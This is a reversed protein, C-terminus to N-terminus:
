SNNWRSVKEFNEFPGICSTTHSRLNGLTSSAIHMPIPNDTQPTTICATTLFASASGYISPTEDPADRPAVVAIISPKPVINPLLEIPIIAKKPARAAVNATIVNDFIPPRELEDFNTREPIAIPATQVANELQTKYMVLLLFAVM